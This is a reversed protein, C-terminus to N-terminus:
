SALVAKCYAFCKKVEAVTDLGPQEDNYEYEINAPIPYRKDRLLLLVHKIPTDGRGFPVAPGHDKKRDKIHLMLIKSHHEEIYSAPDYGGAAFHGIDLNIYFQPSMALAKAFSEPTAFENPKATEDHGHMAIRLKYKDAVPALRRACTLTTSTTIINTGLAKTMQCGRDLEADSFSDRFNLSYASLEIGARDFKKRIEEFYSLPTTLRWDKLASGHLDQPEVHGMYLECEGIGIQVMAAIAADLTLDRFSYSQLGLQVGSIRSGLIKAVGPARALGGFAMAGFQRRSCMSWEMVFSDKDGTDQKRDLIAIRFVVHHFQGHLFKVNREVTCLRPRRVLEKTKAYLLMMTEATPGLM